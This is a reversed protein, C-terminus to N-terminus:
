QGWLGLGPRLEALTIVDARVRLTAGGFTTEDPLVARVEMSVPRANLFGAVGRADTVLRNGTFQNLSSLTWAFAGDETPDNGLAELAVGAARTGQTLPALATMARDCSLTRVALTGRTNDVQGAGVEDYARQRSTKLLVPIPLGFVANGGDAVTIDPSGVLPGGFFYDMEAYDPEKTLKLGGEFNYPLNITYLAGMAPPTVIACRETPAPTESTCRPIAVCDSTFCAEVGLDPIPTLADFDVIAVRYLVRTPTRNTEVMLTTPNDDLCEFGIPLDAAPAGGAGAGGGSGANGSGGGGGANGGLNEVLVVTNYTDDEPAMSSCGGGIAVLLALLGIREGFNILTM